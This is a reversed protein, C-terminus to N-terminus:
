TVEWPGAWSTSYCPAATNYPARLVKKHQRQSQCGQHCKCCNHSTYLRNVSRLMHSLELSCHQHHGCWNSFLASTCWEAHESTPMASCATVHMPLVNCQKGSCYLLLVGADFASAVVACLLVARPWGWVGGAMGLFALWVNHLAAHCHGHICPIM